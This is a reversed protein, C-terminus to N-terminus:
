AFAASRTVKLSDDVLLYALGTDDLVQRAERGKLMALTAVSGAIVCHDAVVSVSLPGQVPMGTRPNLLHSYKIGEIEICRAYSGSTALAGSALHLTDISADSEPNQIAVSWSSGDARPGTVCLDGGLNILAHPAGAERLLSAARDAAYEKVIGGFDLEMGAHAFRLRPARWDVHHWGVRELLAQIATADPVATQGEPQFNWARRLLGSTVDFLGESQEYCTKAYDLLSATEADVEIEGGAQAVHNIRSLFSTDLYRSYKAELRGVDDIVVQALKRAAAMDAAFISVSCRTGMAGFVVEFLGPTLDKMSANERCYEYDGGPTLDKMMANKGALAYATAM